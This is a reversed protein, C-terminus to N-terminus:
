SEFLKAMNIIKNPLQKLLLQSYDSAKRMNEFRENQPSNYINLENNELDILWVEPIEYKAYLPIKIGRDYRLSTDSVEIILLIDGPKPHSHRYFDERPKLVVIDPEPESSDGLDIPSQVSIYTKEGLSMKLVNSLYLVTGAHNSGIPSMDVIEGEILEVREQQKLIGAEGMRRYEEATLRHKHVIDDANTAM